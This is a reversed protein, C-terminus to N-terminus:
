FNNLIWTGFRWTRVCQGKRKGGQNVALATDNFIKIFPIVGQSEGNTGHVSFENTEFRTWDTGIGGAWKSSCQMIPIFSLIGKLSDDTINIYCSSMQSHLTGSNFFLTPTSSVFDMNSLVNYFEIAREERNKEKIVLGYCCADLVM